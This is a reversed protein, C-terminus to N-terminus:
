NTLKTRTFLYISLSGILPVILYIDFILNTFTTGAFQSFYYILFLYIGSFILSKNKSLKNVFFIEIFQIIFGFFFMSFLAATRGFNILWDAFFVTPMSGVIGLKALEPFVISNIETTIVINKFPLLGGPNSFTAGWLLGHSELYLQWFYFPWIQGIFIRNFPAILVASIGREGLGTFFAYMLLIAGATILGVYVILKMNLKRKEYIFTLALLMVLQIVPAKHLEMISIFINLFLVAFFFIKWKFNINRTFFLICLIVIPLTRFIYNLWARGGQYDNGAESRVQGLIVDDVEGRLVSIVPVNNLSMMFIIMAIVSVVFYTITIFGMKVSKDANTIEIPKSILKTSFYKPRYGTLINAILMGLPILFLGAVSYYWINLVLDMRKYIGISDQYEFYTLNLLTAGIFCFVFYNYMFFNSISPLRLNGNAAKLLYGSMLLSLISAFLILLSLGGHIM